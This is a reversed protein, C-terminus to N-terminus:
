QGIGQVVMYKKKCICEPCSNTCEEQYECLECNGKLDCGTCDEKCSTNANLNYNPADKEMCGKVKFICKIPDHINVESNYNLATKDRCGINRKNIYFYITIAFMIVFIIYKLINSIM